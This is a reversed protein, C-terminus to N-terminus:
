LKEELLRNIEKTLESLRKPDQEKSAQECFVKWKEETEGQM